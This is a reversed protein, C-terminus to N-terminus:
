SMRKLSEELQQRQHMNFYIGRRALLEAHKGQEIITGGDLVIINDAHRITSIRHSVIITTRNKMLPRIRKLIEEETYTDVSSLADDLILIAPNKLLARSIAARQKQGGSLTIGREGIITNLGQPFQDADTQLQSFESAQLVASEQADAVGFAINESISESFLFTEQQVFGINERLTRLPIEGLNRGDILIQGSSPEYLRTLLHVLTSKGSGTAGVVALTSGRPVKLSFQDLILPQDEQYRFCVQHFEIEGDFRRISFDTAATDVIDPPQNLIFQVREAATLGQQWLNLLWGFAIMPWELMAAYALLAILGGLTLRGTIVLRGGILVVAIIGLGLLLEILVHFLANLKALSLNRVVYEKNDAQFHSIQFDERVYSKIVRIGSFVEQVRTTIKAFQDQIRDFLQDIRSLLFYVAIIILPLPALAVLTLPVNLRLMSYLGLVFINLTALAQAIGGGTMQRIANIDNTARAMLDGTKNQQFFRPSQLQLHKLYDNRMEFEVHRSINVLLIRGLIRFLGFLFAAVLLVASLRLLLFRSNSIGAFLPNLFRFLSVQGSGSGQRILDISKGMIRPIMVQFLGSLVVFVFGFLLHWNYRKLYSFLFRFATKSESKMTGWARKENSLIRFIPALEL